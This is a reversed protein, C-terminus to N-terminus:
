FVTMKDLHVLELKPHLGSLAKIEVSNKGILKHADESSYNTIGTAIHEGHEDKIFLVDGANFKGRIAVVGVPLLSAKKGLLAQKARENIIIEGAAKIFGALWKKGLKTKKESAYFVSFKADPALLKTLPNLSKGNAIICECGVTTVMKAAKIKTAMGGTSILSGAGRATNEIKKTIESIERILKADQHTKPNSDYLGDVDSLLILLDAAIAQSVKSALRDNDGIKIEDVAVTDNENIIPVVKKALLTEITNKFNLYRQHHNLDSDTLLIQAVEIGALNFQQHYHSMLQIQGIAAAAQKETISLSKQGPTTLSKRGLAVAGSSVITLEINRALLSKVDQALSALWAVRAHNNEDAILSSGIKVVIRKKASFNYQGVENQDGM